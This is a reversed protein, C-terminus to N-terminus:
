FSKSFPVPLEKFLTEEGLGSDRRVEGEHVLSFRSGSLTRKRKHPKAYFHSSKQITMEFRGKQVKKVGGQAYLTDEEQGPPIFISMDLAPFSYKRGPSSTTSALSYDTNCSSSLIPLDEDDPLIELGVAAAFEHASLERVPELDPAPSQRQNKLLALSKFKRILSNM